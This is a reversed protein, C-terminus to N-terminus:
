DKNQQFKTRSSFIPLTNRMSNSTEIRTKSSNRGPTCLLVSNPSSSIHKLGQKAPIEDPLSSICFNDPMIAKNWDKNQQFKTRSIYTYYKRNPIKWLKLGQKAPIEDPLSSMQFNCTPVVETEIRTKSSNRGPTLCRVHCYYLRKHKLGQKAPIEDPLKM